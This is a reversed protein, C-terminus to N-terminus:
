QSLLSDMKSSDVTSQISTSGPVGIKGTIKEFASDIAAAAQSLQEQAAAHRSGSGTNTDPANTTNSSMRQTIDITVSKYVDGLAGYNASVYRVTNFASHGSVKLNGTVGVSPATVVASDSANLAFLKGNIVISASTSHDASEGSPNLVFLPTNLVCQEGVDINLNRIAKFFIDNKNLSLSCGETNLMTVVHNVSDITFQNPGDSIDDSITLKGNKTDLNIRYRVPENNAKSTSILLHGAVADLEIFYTNDDNKEVNANGKVTNDIASVEIRKVDLGRLSRDRGNPLWYFKDADAMRFLKIQEGKKVMPPTPENTTSFYTATIYNTTTVKSTTSKGSADTTTASSDTQGPGFAGSFSGPAHSIPLVKLQDSGYIKDEVAYGWMSKEPNITDNQM